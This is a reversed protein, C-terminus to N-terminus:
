KKILKNEKKLVNDWTDGAPSFLMKIYNIDLYQKGITSSIYAGKTDQGFEYRLETDIGKPAVAPCTYKLSINKM